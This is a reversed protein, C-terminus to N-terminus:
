GLTNFESCLTQKKLGKKKKKQHHLLGPFLLASPCVVFFFFCGFVQFTSSSDKFCINLFKGGEGELHFQVSSFDCVSIYSSLHHPESRSQSEDTKIQQFDLKAAMTRMAMEMYIFFLEAQSFCGRITGCVADDTRLRCNEKGLFHSYLNM